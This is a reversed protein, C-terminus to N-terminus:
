LITDGYFLRKGSYEMEVHVARISGAGIEYPYSGDLKEVCAAKTELRKKCQEIVEAPAHPRSVRVWHGRYEMAISVSYNDELKAGAPPRPVTDGNTVLTILDEAGARRFRRELRGVFHHDVSGVAKPLEDSLRGAPVFTVVFLAFTVKLPDPEPKAAMLGSAVFAPLKLRKFPRFKVVTPDNLLVPLKSTSEPLM